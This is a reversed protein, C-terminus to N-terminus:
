ALSGVAVEAVAAPPIGVVDMAHFVGTQRGAWCGGWDKGHGGRIALLAVALRCTRGQRRDGVARAPVRRPCGDEVM